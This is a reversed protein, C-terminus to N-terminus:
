HEDLYRQPMWQRWREVTTFGLREYVRYGMPSSQLYAGHAGADFAALVTAATVASGYGHGREAAPTAVNFVGCLDRRVAGYATTVDYGDVSGIWTTSEPLTFFRLPFRERTLEAPMGFGQELLSLARDLDAFTQAPRLSLRVADVAARLRSPDTLVMLPVDGAVALGADALARDLERPYGPRLQLNWPLAGAAFEGVADLVAAATVSDAVAWVGNFAPAPLQTRIRAVGGDVAHSGGNFCLTMERWLDHFAAVAAVDTGSRQTPVPVSATTETM